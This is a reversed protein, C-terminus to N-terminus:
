STRDMMLATDLADDRCTTHYTSGLPTKVIWEQWDVSWRVSIQGVKNHKGKLLKVTAPTTGAGSATANM